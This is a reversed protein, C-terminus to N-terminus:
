DSSNPTLFGIFPCLVLESIAPSLWCGQATLYELNGGHVSDMSHVLAQHAITGPTAFLQVHTVVRPM